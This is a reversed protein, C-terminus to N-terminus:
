SQSFINCVTLTVGPRGSMRSILSVTHMQGVRAARVYLRLPIVLPDKEEAAFPFGTIVHINYKRTNADEPHLHHVPSCPRVSVQGTRCVLVDGVKGTESCDVVVLYM